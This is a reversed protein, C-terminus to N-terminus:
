DELYSKIVSYTQELTDRLKAVEGCQRDVDPGRSQLIGLSNPTGMYSSDREMRAVENMLSEATHKMINQLGERANEFKRYQDSIMYFFAEKAKDGHRPHLENVEADWSAWVKIQDWKANEKEIYSNM